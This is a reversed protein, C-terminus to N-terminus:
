KFSCLLSFLATNLPLAGAGAKRSNQRHAMRYVFPYQPLFLLPAVDTVLPTQAPCRAGSFRVGLGHTVQYVLVPQVSSSDYVRVDGTLRM